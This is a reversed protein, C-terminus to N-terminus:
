QEADELVRAVKARADHEDFGEHDWGKTLEVGTPTPTSSSVYECNYTPRPYQEEAKDMADLVSGTFPIETVFKKGEYVIIWNKSLRTM